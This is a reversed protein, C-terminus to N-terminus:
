ARGRVDALRRAAWELKVAEQELQGGEHENWPYEVISKAVAPDGGGYANFAGFVTSPPCVQDMLAVSFLAPVRARRALAVGDVYSLTRLVAQEDDRRIRLYRVLEAYPDADTITVARRIDCLFPVDIMAGRLDPVLSAVALAIAGGQSAGTVYVQDADVEPLERVADIARVADTFVRRYYYTSADLIGRTMFGAHEPGTGAQPDATAGLQWTAGQGRNDVSLHAFGALTWTVPDLVHGRGGQYGHYQVVVPLPEGGRGVPTRFWARIPDGDFGRFVVDHTEVGAYPTAVRTRTVDQDVARARQLTDAWFSDLDHPEDVAARYTRLEHIPMDFLM